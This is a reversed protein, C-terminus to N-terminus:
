RAPLAKRSQLDLRASSEFIRRAIRDLSVLAAPRRAEALKACVEGPDDLFNVRTESFILWAPFVPFGHYIVHEISGLRKRIQQLSIARQRLEAVIGAILTLDLPYVRTHARHEPCIVKREDWWQVMRPSVDFARCIDRTLLERKGQEAALWNRIAYDTVVIPGPKHVHPSTLKAPM